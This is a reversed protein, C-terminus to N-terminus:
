SERPPAVGVATWLPDQYTKGWERGYHEFAVQPTNGLLEALTEITCGAGGNWYGSLLRHAFTHRCTNCSFQSRVPDLDWRLARKIKRFRAGGTVKKWTRGQANPFLPADKDAGRLRTVLLKAVESRVPIKRTKKTKSSYVRWLMGGNVLEADRVRLRALECFPRLGTHVAAFLFDRFANDAAKYIAKEDGPSFSQLRPRASPKPFGRFPNQIGHCERAFEFASIVVTLANRRTVPSRWTPHSEVWHELHWKQLQDIPLAGCYKAFDNLLRRVHQGHEDCVRGSRVRAECSQIYESCVGAVLAVAKPDAMVEASPKWDNRAKLRALALDAAQKSSASKIRKGTADLLAVRRKTGPPTFYWTGTQQWYWASGAARRRKSPGLPTQKTSESNM